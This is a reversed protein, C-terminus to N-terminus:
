QMLHLFFDKLIAYFMQLCKKLLVKDTPCLNHRNYGMCLLVECGGFFFSNDQTHCYVVQLTTARTRPLISHVKMAM